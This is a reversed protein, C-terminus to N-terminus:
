DTVVEYEGSEKKASSMKKESFLGKSYDVIKDTTYAGDEIDSVTRQREQAQDQEQKVQEEKRRKEEDEKRKM